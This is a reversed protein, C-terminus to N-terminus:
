QWLESHVNAMLIEVHLSFKPNNTDYLYVSMKLKLIM